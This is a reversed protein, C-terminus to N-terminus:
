FDLPYEEYYEESLTVTYLRSKVGKKHVQWDKMTISSKAGSPEYLTLKQGFEEEVFTDNISQQDAKTQSDTLHTKELLYQFGNGTIAVERVISDSTM